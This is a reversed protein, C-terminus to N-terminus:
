DGQFQLRDDGYCFAESEQSIRSADVVGFSLSEVKVLTSRMLRNSEAIAEHLNAGRTWRRLFYFYFVPSASDGPHGVYAKAGLQLWASGQKM